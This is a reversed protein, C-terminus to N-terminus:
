HFHQQCSFRGEYASLIAAAHSFRQLFGGLKVQGAIKLANVIILVQAMLILPVVDSAAVSESSGNGSVQTSYGLLLKKNWPVPM